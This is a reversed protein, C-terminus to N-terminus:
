RRTRRASTAATCCFAAARRRTTGPRWTTSSVLIFWRRKWNTRGGHSGGRKHLWGGRIVGDLSPMSLMQKTSKTAAAWSRWRDAVHCGGCLWHSLPALKGCAHIQAVHAPSGKVKFNKNQFTNISVPVRSPVTGWRPLGARTGQGSPSYLHADHEHLTHSSRHGRTHCRRFDPTTSSTSHTAVPMPETPSVRKRLHSGRPHTLVVGVVVGVPASGRSVGLRADLDRASVERSRRRRWRCCQPPRRGCRCVPTHAISDHPAGRSLKMRRPTL